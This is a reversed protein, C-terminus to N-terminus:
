IMTIYIYYLLYVHVSFMRVSTSNSQKSEEHVNKGEGQSRTQSGHWHFGGHEQVAPGPCDAHLGGSATLFCTFYGPQDQTKRGVLFIFCRGVM